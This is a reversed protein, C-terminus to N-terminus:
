LLQVSCQNLQEQQDHDYSQVQDCQVFQFIHLFQNLLESQNVKMTKYHQKIKKRLSELGLSETYSFKDNKVAKILESKVKKSAKLDPQGVEFHITDKYKQAKKVIDMVIFSSMKDYKMYRMLKMFQNSVKYM